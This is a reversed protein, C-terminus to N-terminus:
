KVRWVRWGLKGIRKICIKINLPICARYLGNKNKEDELKVLFSDGVDMDKLPYRDILLRPSPIPIGKEIKVVYNSM